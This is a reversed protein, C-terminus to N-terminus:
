RSRRNSNSFFGADPIANIADEIAGFDPGGTSSGGAYAGSYGFETGGKRGKKIQDLKFTYAMADIIGGDDAPYDATNYVGFIRDPRWLLFTGKEAITPGNTLSWQYWWGPVGFSYLNLTRRVELSRLRLHPPWVSPMLMYLNAKRLAAMYDKAVKWTDLFLHAEDLVIAADEIPFREGELFSRRLNKSHYIGGQSVYEEIPAKGKIDINSYVREVLGRAVLEAALLVALLTKGSGFFGAGWVHRVSTVLAFFTEAGFFFNDFVPIKM